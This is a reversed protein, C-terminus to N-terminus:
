NSTAPGSPLAHHHTSLSQDHASLAPRLHIPSHEGDPARHAAPTPPSRSNPVPAPAPQDGSSSSPQDSQGPTAEILARAVLVIILILNM